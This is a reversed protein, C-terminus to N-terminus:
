RSLDRSDDQANEDPFTDEAWRDICRSMYDSMPLTRGTEIRYRVCGAIFAERLEHRSCPSAGSGEAERKRRADMAAEIAYGQFTREDSM